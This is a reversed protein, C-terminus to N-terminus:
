GAADTGAGYHEIAASELAVLGRDSTKAEYLARDAWASVASFRFPLGRHSSSIGCSARIRLKSDAGVGEVAARAKTGIVRADELDAGPILILFEDGGLRYILDYSRLETRLRDAVAVLLDDGTSHGLSDNVQKFGDLDLVVVGVPERTWESQAEIEKVRADLTARNLLGTLPDVTSKSRHEVDSRMLATSLVAAGIAVAVAAILPPPDAWVAAANTGFAVAIMLLVAIAGGLWIGRTSFRASLTVVPLALLTLMSSSSDDTLALSIAIIVEVGVWGGFMWNEPRSAKEIKNEIVRDLVVVIALPALTWLGVWPAALVLAAAVVFFTLRVFPRLRRDMDLMRERDDAGTALWSPSATPLPGVPSDTLTPLSM